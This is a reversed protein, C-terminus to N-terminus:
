TLKQKQGLREPGLAGSDRLEPVRGAGSTRHLRARGGHRRAVHLLRRLDHKQVRRLLARGADQGPRPRRRRVAADPHGTATGPTAQAFGQAALWALGERFLKQQPRNTAVVLDIYGPVGAQAAGPTDSEPIIHNAVTAILAM